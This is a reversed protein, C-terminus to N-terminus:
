CVLQQTYKPDIDRALSAAGFFDSSFSPIAQEAIAENSFFQPMKFHLFIYSTFHKIKEM